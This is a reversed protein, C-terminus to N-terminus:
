EPQSSNEAYDGSLNKPHINNRSKGEGECCGSNEGAVIETTNPQHNHANNESILADNEDTSVRGSCNCDVCRWYSQGERGRRNLTYRYGKFALSRAGRKTKM